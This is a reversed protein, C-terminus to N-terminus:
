SKMERVRFCRKEMKERKEAWEEALLGIAIVDEYEGNKLVHQRFCGEEHFGFKKHLKLVHENFSLVEGCLKRLELRGFAYELALYEMISGRGRPGDQQGLYFGWFSKNNVRDIQVFNVVGIAVGQEECILYVSNSDEKAKAYWARHEEISIVHDTYMYARVSELNRWKWVMELDDETMERLNFDTKKLFHRRILQRPISNDSKGLDELM